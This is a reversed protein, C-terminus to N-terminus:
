TVNIRIRTSTRGRGWRREVLIVYVHSYWWKMMSCVGVLVYLCEFENVCACLRGYVRACWSFSDVVTSFKCCYNILYMIFLYTLVICFQHQLLSWRRSASWVSGAASDRIIEYLSIVNEISLLVIICWELLDSRRNQLVEQLFHINHQMGWLFVPIFRRYYNLSVIRCVKKCQFM